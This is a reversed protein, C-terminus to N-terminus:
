FTFRFGVMVNHSDYDFDTGNFEASPASLFSYSLSAGLNPSFAYALGGIVQYAFATEKENGLDGDTDFVAVGVGAGVFPALNAAAGTAGFNGLYFDYYGNAMTTFATIDGDVDVTVSGGGPDGKLEDFKNERYGLEIEGRLGSSLAYGVAGGLLWGTDTDLEIDSIGALNEIDSDTLFTAGGRVEVYVGQSWNQAAAASPLFVAFALAALANRTM